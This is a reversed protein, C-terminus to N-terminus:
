ITKSAEGSLDSETGNGAVSTVAFFYTGPALDRDRLSHRGRQRHRDDPRLSGVATGYHIKYGKLNTLPSGDTNQTPPQWALTATGNGGGSSEEVVNIAFQPLARTTSGDSVSIAIDEHSGVDNQHPTGWLRGTARDFTAWDPKSAISFSLSDGDADTANPRFNFSEGVLVESSPSGVIQPAANGPPPNSPDPNGGVPRRPSPIAASQTPRATRDM